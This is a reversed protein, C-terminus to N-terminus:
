ICTGLFGTALTSTIQSLVSPLTYVGSTTPSVNKVVQFWVPLYYTVVFFAGNSMINAVVACSVISNRFLSLPLMATEGRHYEWSLLLCFTGAAGCFLGIITASNWPYSVGGWELALLLMIVTPAFIACGPLDLRGLQHKLSPKVEDEVRADPIRIFALAAFTIAGIPLNLYFGIPSKSSLYLPDLSPSFPVYM